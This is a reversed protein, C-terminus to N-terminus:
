RFVLLNFLVHQRLVSLLTEFEVTVPILTAITAGGGSDVGLSRKATSTEALNLDAAGHTRLTSATSTPYYFQTTCFLTQLPTGAANQGCSCPVFPAM